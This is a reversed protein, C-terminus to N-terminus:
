PTITVDPRRIYDRWDALEGKPRKLSGLRKAVSRGNRRHAAPLARQLYYQHRGALTDEGQMEAYAECAAKVAEDYHAGAPHVDTDASLATFHLEYPLLVTLEENSAPYTLLEWRNAVYTADMKRIATLTPTGTQTDINERLRRITSEDGWALSVGKNTSAAYTIRGNYEGGFTSPLTYRGDSTVTVTAGDAEGSADGTVVAILVSTVSTIPYNHAGTVTDGDAEGSADGEITVTTTDTYGIITYSNGTATFTIEQGIMGVKLIADDVDVVTTGAAATYTPVGDATSTVTFALNHGVMGEQFMSTHVTVTSATVFVPAGNATSSSTVWLVIEAVPHQFTWGSGPADFLFMRVGGNTYRKIRDLTPADTPPAAATAGAVGYYAVGLLLSLHMNLDLFTLGDEAM